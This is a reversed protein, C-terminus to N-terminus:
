RLTQSAMLSAALCDMGRPCLCLYLGCQVSSIASITVCRLWALFFTSLSGVLPLLVFLLLTTACTISNVFCHLASLHFLVHLSISRLFSPRLAHISRCLKFPSVGFCLRCGSLVSSANTVSLLFFAVYNLLCKALVLVSCDLGPFLHRFSAFCLVSDDM